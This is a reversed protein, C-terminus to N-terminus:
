IQCNGCICVDREKIATCKELAGPFLSELALIQDYDL